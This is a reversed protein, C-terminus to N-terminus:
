NPLISMVKHCRAWHNLAKADPRRPHPRNESSRWGSASGRPKTTFFPTFIGDRLDGPVHHDRVQSLTCGVVHRLVVLMMLGFGSSHIIERGDSAM